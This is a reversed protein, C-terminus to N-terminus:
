RGGPKKRAAGGRPRAPVAPCGNGTRAIRPSSSPAPPKPDDIWAPLDFAEAAADKPPPGFKTVFGATWGPDDLRTAHAEFGEPFDRFGPKDRLRAIADQAAQESSFIGIHLETDERDAYERTFWLDYVVDM